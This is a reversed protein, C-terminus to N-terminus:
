TQASRRGEFIRDSNQPRGEHLFTNDTVGEKGDERTHVAVEGKLDVSQAIPM